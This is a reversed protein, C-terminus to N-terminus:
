SLRARGARGEQVPRSRCCATHAVMRCGVASLKELLYDGRVDTRGGRGTFLADLAAAHRDLSGDGGLAVAWSRGSRPELASGRACAVLAPGVRRRAARAHDRQHGALSPFRCRRSHARRWRVGPRFHVGPTVTLDPPPPSASGGHPPDVHLLRCSCPAVPPSATTSSASGRWGASTAM